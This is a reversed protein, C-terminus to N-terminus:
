FSAGFSFNFVRDEDEDDEAVPFGFDFIIPVGGFIDVNIRVGFGVAVRWTTIEFDEEVTGSDLFVVGRVSNAYLPISYETGALAIFDGGVPDNYVGKRPSIGRYDFGRLTGLGGAYYTEFVPADGVIYGIDGRVSWISKRDFVDTRLTKYWRMNAAPRGFDYDGGLVGAQEWSVTLRYGESPLLRSDTTDRVVSVKGTTLTSRGRVQRIAQAALTKVDDIDVAEANLAGELAWGAFPGTEFRHSLAGLVGARKETYSGRDREFLYLSTDLRLPRDFLYPETFDIRARSLETGPEVSLRLTQGAGRFAQGRLFEGWTRPWNFLDFNRNNITFSGILGNDGSVGVGILFDITQGEVVEVVAEREGGVDEMPTVTARSFLTTERLRKEAKRTLPVNYDEGPYFRLERRVVEDKTNRNGRVTIRGFRSRKNETITYQLVTIGPQDQTFEYETDIRADVYGIEGYMDQIKRVDAKREEDRAFKGPALLMVGRLRETDFVDNGSITIDHIRYRVGEEIVFTVTLDAREVPDFDLRYGVRADLFGEDRYFTQLDVADRNAQDEDFAGKRLIWLYTETKVKQKLRSRGFSTNGEFAIKRVKVRPGETVRYIVRGEDLAPEDLTVEAYYYGEEKYKRLIEDRGRTVEYRDLVSGATFPLLEFLKNDKFEVNGEIELLAITPKEQVNVVVVARGNETFTNATVNIFKRSKFIESVDAQLQRTDVPQGVRTQMLRRVFGENISQLGRIEVREVVAGDPAPQEQAPAPWAVGFM